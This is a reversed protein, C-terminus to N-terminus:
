LVPVSGAGQSAEAWSLYDKSPDEPVEEGQLSALKDGSLLPAERSGLTLHCIGLPPHEVLLLQGLTGLGESGELRSTM